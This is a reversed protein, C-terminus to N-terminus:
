KEEKPRYGYYFYGCESCEIRVVDNNPLLQSVYKLDSTNLPKEGFSFYSKCETCRSRLAAGITIYILIVIVLCFTAGYLGVIKFVFFYDYVLYVFILSVVTLILFAKKLSVNLRKYKKELIWRGTRIIAMEFNSLPDGLKHIPVNHEKYDADVFDRFNKLAQRVANEYRTLNKRDFLVCDTIRKTIGKDDVGNEIFMIIPKDADFAMGVENQVWDPGKWSDKGQIKERRTLLGVFGNSVRILEKIKDHPPRPQRVEIAFIPILDYEQLLGRFWAVIHMDEEHTSASLFIRYKM